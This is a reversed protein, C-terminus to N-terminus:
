TERNWLITLFITWFLGLIQGLVQWFDKPFSRSLDNKKNEVLLGGGNHYTKQIKWIEFFELLEKNQGVYDDIKSSM